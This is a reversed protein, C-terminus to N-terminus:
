HFHDFIRVSGVCMCLLFLFLLFTHNFFPLGSDIKLVRNCIFFCNCFLKFIFYTCYTHNLFEHMALFVWSIFNWWSSLTKFSNSQIENLSVSKSALTKTKIVKKNTYEIRIYSWLYRLTSKWKKMEVSNNPWVYFLNNAKKKMKPVTFDFLIFKTPKRNFSSLNILM